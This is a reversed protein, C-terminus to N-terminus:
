GAWRWAKWTLNGNKKTYFIFKTKTKTEYHFLFLLVIDVFSTHISWCLLTHVFDFNCELKQQFRTSHRVWVWFSSTHLRFHWDNWCENWALSRLEGIKWFKSWNNGAIKSTSCLILHGRRRHPYSEVIIEDQM